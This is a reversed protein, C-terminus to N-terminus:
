PDDPPPPGRMLRAFPRLAGYLKQDVLARYLELADAFKGRYPFWFPEAPMWAPQAMIARQHCFALLGEDGHYRGFGSQKAGGFPLAPNGVSAVLDNVNVHGAELRSALALGRRADRTWVSATLAYKHDNALRIAAEEDPVRLVPLVPGFTEERYVEMGERVDSLLTPAYFRGPRDLREGGRRVHAGADRAENVHREVIDRQADSIMPGVDADEDPDGVRLRDMEAEVRAIFADFVSEVVLVREVSICMQGANMVGGWVCARAARELPADACVIMADKGGLELEVPIPREAAAAMVKRGTAVSGTFFLKDIEARCLAAGAEGDGQVVQAVGGALGIADFLERILEGVDPTLESPKIVVANGAILASLAPYMALHFPFNWPAIIGIVGMPFPHVFSRRPRFLLPTPRAQRGLVRPARRAYHDLLMPVSLLEHMLAEFHPKGTAASIRRAFAEGHERLAPRLGDLVGVRERM